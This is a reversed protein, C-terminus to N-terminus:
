EGEKDMTKDRWPFFSRVNITDFLRREKQGTKQRIKFLIPVGSRKEGNRKEADPYRPKRGFNGDEWKEKNEKNDRFGM